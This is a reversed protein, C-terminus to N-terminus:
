CLCLAAAGTTIELVCKFFPSDGSLGIPYSVLGLIYPLDRRSVKMTRPDEAAAAIQRLDEMTMGVKAVGDLVGITAPVGGNRRVISELDLALAVNHPYPFGHTYITTELAVVPKRANLAEKVEPSIQFVDRQHHIELRSNLESKSNTYDRSIFSPRVASYTDGTGRQGKSQRGGFSRVLRKPPRM